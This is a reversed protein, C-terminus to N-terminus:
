KDLGRSKVFRTVAEKCTKDNFGEWIEYLSILEQTCDVVAEISVSSEALWTM